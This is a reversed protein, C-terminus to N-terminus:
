PVTLISLITLGHCRKVLRQSSSLLLDVLVRCVCNRQRYLANYTPRFVAAVLPITKCPLNRIRMIILRRPTWSATSIACMLSKLCARYCPFNSIVRQNEVHMCALSRLNWSSRTWGSRRLATINAAAIRHMAVDVDLVCPCPVLRMSDEICM